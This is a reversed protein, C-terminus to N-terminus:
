HVDIGNFNIESVAVDAYKEGKYVEAIELTLILDKKKGKSQTPAIKFTQQATTDSLELTAYYVNNIYLRFKKVRANAKFLEMNKIYGNYILIETVRPSLPKFHFSIKKGTVGNTTDPVWSTFLNFDHINDPKYNTNGQGKLYSGSTVKYMQGGCYWSCGPEKTIPGYGEDLSDILAKDNPSLKKYDADGSKIKDYMELVTQWILQQQKSYSNPTGLIPKITRTTQGFSLFTTAM